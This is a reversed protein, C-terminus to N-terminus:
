RREEKDSSVEKHSTGDNNASSSPSSPKSIKASSLAGGFVEKQSLAM